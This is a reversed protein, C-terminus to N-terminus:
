DFSLPEAPKSDRSAEMAAIDDNTLGIERGLEWLAQGMKLRSAPKVAAALIARVEAETSQGHSAALAKLGRHVDDPINRITLAPM